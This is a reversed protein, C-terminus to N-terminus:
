DFVEHASRLLEEPLGVKLYQAARRNIVLEARRPPVPMLVGGHLSLLRLAVDACQRGLDEYDWDLAYLAGARAWSAAPGILPLRRRMSVTLLTRAAQPTLLEADPLPLLADVRDAAGEAAAQIDLVSSVALRVAELGARRAAAAAAEVRRGDAQFLLGVRRAEPLLRRLQAFQLTYDHELVVGPAESTPAACSLLRGTPVAQRALREGASGLGIALDWADTRADGEPAVLTRGEVWETVRLGPGLTQRLGQAVQALPGPQEPLVLLVQRPTGAPAAAAGLAALALAAPALWGGTGQWGLRRSSTIVRMNPAM